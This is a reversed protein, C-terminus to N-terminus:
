PGGYNCSKKVIEWAGPPVDDDDGGEKSKMFATYTPEAWFEVGFASHQAGGSFMVGERVGKTGKLEQPIEYWGNLKLFLAQGIRKFLQWKTLFTQDLCSLCLNCKAAYAATAVIEEKGGCWGCKDGHADREKPLADRSKLEANLEKAYCENSWRGDKDRLMRSPAAPLGEDAEFTNEIWVGDEDKAKLQHDIFLHPLSPIIELEQDDGWLVWEGEGEMVRQMVTCIRDPPMGLVTELIYKTQLGVLGLKKTSDKVLTRLEKSTEGLRMLDVVESKEFVMGLLERPLHTLHNVVVVDGGEMRQERDDESGQGRGKGMEKGSGKGRGRGRGKKQGQEAGVSSTKTLPEAKRKKRAIELGSDREVSDTRRKRGVESSTSGDRETKRPKKSLGKESQQSRARKNVSKKPVVSRGEREEREKIALRSSRRRGSNDM